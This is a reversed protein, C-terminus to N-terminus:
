FWLSQIVGAAGILVLGGFVTLSFISAVKSTRKLKRLDDNKRFAFMVSFAATAALVPMSVILVILFGLKDWGGANEYLFWLSGGIVFPVGALILARYRIWEWM